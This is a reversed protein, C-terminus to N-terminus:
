KKHQLDEFACLGMWTEKICFTKIKEKVKAFHQSNLSGAFALLFLAM